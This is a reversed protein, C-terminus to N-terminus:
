VSPLTAPDIVGNFVGDLWSEIRTANGYRDMNVVAYARMGTSTITDTLLGNTYRMATALFQEYGDAMGYICWAPQDPSPDHCVGHRHHRFEAVVERGPWFRRYAAVGDVDHLRGQQDLIEEIVGIPTDLSIM